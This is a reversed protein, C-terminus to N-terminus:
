TINRIPTSAANRERAFALWAIPTMIVAECLGAWSLPTFSISGSPSISSCLQSRSAVSRTFTLSVSSTSCTALIQSSCAMSLLAAARTNTPM